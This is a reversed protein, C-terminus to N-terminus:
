KLGKVTIKGTSTKPLSERFEIYKPIMFDELNRACHSLIKKESLDTGKRLVIYAKIAEGLLEDPVGVVAAELVGEISYLTNEIEKPSIKEGRSKIINDMRSVFYLFGEDDMRFLDGTYLSKEWSYLGPRLREETEKPLNWYGMMVNSGRVVLEGIKGPQDIVRDEEDVLYVEENPMGKGVSDPRRALESPPLYSVRKCETLGYMSYISTSPFIRQLGEIHSIPLAAATNTVYRLFSFDEKDLDQMQLLIASITPVIPFGTVKEKKLSNIVAYPYSFSRELVVTGGFQAAMLIQYLGYDFSFPLLNLIIDNETNELYTTISTSASVMNHHTLMVGKPNGTTGSTYILAALDIDITKISPPSDCSNDMVEEWPMLRIKDPVPSLTGTDTVGTSIVTRLSPIDALIDHVAKWRSRHAILCSAGCDNLIYKIKQSKTTPNVVFFICGAKLIGWVSIITEISNDILVAVRDGYKVGCSQLEAALSNAAKDIDGFTYRNAGQIIAPKENLRWASNELFKHVLM